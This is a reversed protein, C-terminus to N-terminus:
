NALKKVEVPAPKKPIEDMEIRFNTVEMKKIGELDKVEVLADYFEKPTVGYYVIKM